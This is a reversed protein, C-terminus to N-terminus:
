LSNNLTKDILTKENDEDFNICCKALTEFVDKQTMITDELFNIIEEENNIFGCENLIKDISIFAFCVSSIQCNICTRKVIKGKYM